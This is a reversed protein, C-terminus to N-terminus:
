TSDGKSIGNLKQQEERLVQDLAAYREEWVRTLRTLWSELELMTQPNIRYIRYQAKKEVVVLNAERLVKLHQSIAPASAPFRGYIDGAPLEGARALMELIERRTPDSLASFKDVVTNYLL